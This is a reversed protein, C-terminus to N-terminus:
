CWVSYEWFWVFYMPFYTPSLVYWCGQLFFEECDWEFWTVLFQFIFERNIEEGKINFTLFFVGTLKLAVFVCNECSLAALIFVTPTLISSILVIELGVNGDLENVLGGHIGNIIKQPSILLGAFSTHHSALCCVATHVREKIEFDWVTEFYLKFAIENLGTHFSPSPPNVPRIKSFCYISSMIVHLFVFM